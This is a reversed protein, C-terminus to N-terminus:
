SKKYAFFLRVEKLDHKLITLNKELLTVEEQLETERQTVAELQSLLTRQKTELTEVLHREFELQGELQTVQQVSATRSSAPTALIHNPVSQLLLTLIFDSMYSM